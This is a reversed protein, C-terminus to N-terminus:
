EDARLCNELLLSASYLLKKQILINIFIQQTLFFCFIHRLLFASIKWWFTMLRFCRLAFFDKQWLAVAFSTQAFQGLPLPDTQLVIATTKLAALQLKSLSICVPKM